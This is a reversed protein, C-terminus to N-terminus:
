FLFTLNFGIRITLISQEVQDNRSNRTIGMELGGNINRSLTYDSRANLNIADAHGEPRGRTPNAPDNFVTRRDQNYSSNLTVDMGSKLRGRSGLFPLQIGGKPNLKFRVGLTVSRQVGQTKLGPSANTTNSQNLGLTTSMGGRWQATMNGNFTLRDSNTRGTGEVVPQGIREETRYREGVARSFGFSASAREVRGGLPRFLRSREINNINLDFSPSTVDTTYDRNTLANVGFIRTERVGHERKYRVGVRLTQRLPVATALDVIYRRDEPTPVDYGDVGSARSFGYRFGGTPADPLGTYSLNRSDAFEVKIPDIESVKRLVLKIPNITRRPPKARATDAAAVAPPMAEPPVVPPVPIPAPADAGSTDPLAPSSTALSDPASGPLPPMFPPSPPQGSGAGPQPSADEHPPRQPNEDQQRELEDLERGPDPVLPEAEPDQGPDRNRGGATEPAGAMWGFVRRHMAFDFSLRRSRNSGSTHTEPDTVGRTLRQDGFSAVYAFRFRRPTVDVNVAESRSVPLGFDIGAITLREAENSPHTLRYNRPEAFTYRMSVIPLPRMAASATVNIGRVPNSPRKVLSDTSSGRPRLVTYNTSITSSQQLSFKFSNPILNLRTGRFLKFARERPTLDYTLTRSRALSSDRSSFTRTKVRSESFSFLLRDLTVQNLWWRSPRKGFSIGYATRVGEARQEYKREDTNRTDSQSFYKPRAEDHSYTYSVPINFGLTPILRSLEASLRGQFNYTDAGSGTRQRLSRFDANRFTFSTSGDIM